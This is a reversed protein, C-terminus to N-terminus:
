SAGAADKSLMGAIEKIDKRVDSRPMSDSLTKGTNVARIVSEFDNSVRHIRTDPFANEVHELTIQPNRKRYRNVVLAIRERPVRMDTLANVMSRAIRIDVVSMELVILTAHSSSALSAAVDMPLRPADIVSWGFASRCAQLAADLQDYPMPLPDAFNVSAPSLLVHLKQPTEIATSTVLQADITGRQALVDVIGYSGQVGLFASVSGYFRDMDVVLTPKGSALRLEDALNISVTTGGCGGSASLVTVIKGASAPVVASDALLRRLAAGLESPLGARTVCHRIGLQMAELLLDPKLERLLIVFRARPHRRVLNSLEAFASLPDPEVDVLVLAEPSQELAQALDHLTASTSLALPLSSSGLVNEVARALERERSVLVLLGQSTPLGKSRSGTSRWSEFM